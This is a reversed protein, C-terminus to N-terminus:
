HQPLEGVLSPEDSDAAAPRANSGAPDDPGIRLDKPWARKSCYWDQPAERIWSEFIQNVKTMMQVAKTKDDASEDLPDVPPACTVRFRAGDLREIRVPILVGKAKLALRAPALTTLKDYGFFPLPVGEDNRHDVILGVAGGGRLERMLQRSADNRNVLRCGINRRMRLLLRDLLTNKLPTYIATVPFRGFAAAPSIEWNAMHPMVFVIPRKSAHYGLVDAEFVVEIRRPEDRRCIAGLHPYEAFVAGANGWVGRVLEEIRAPSQDRFAIELNRRFHESKALRPGIWAFLRRGMASATDPPLVACLAWFSGLSGAEVLGKLRRLMPSGDVLKRLKKNSFLRAV